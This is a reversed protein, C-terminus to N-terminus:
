SRRRKRRRGTHMAKTSANGGRLHTRARVDAALKHERRDAEALEASLEETEADFALRLAAVEAELMRHKRELQRQLRQRADGRRLAQARESAERNSRATGTLVGGSGIYVPALSIGRESLRFERIQNSHAMGRSKM